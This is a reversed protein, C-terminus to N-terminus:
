IRHDLRGAAARTTPLPVVVEPPKRRGPQERAPAERDPTDRTGRGDPDTPSSTGRVDTGRADASPSAPLDRVTLRADTTGSNELLRHLEPLDNRLIDSARGEGGTAALDVRVNGDRVVLTVRVEGLHEPQLTLSIRHTGNGRSALREVVAGVQRM